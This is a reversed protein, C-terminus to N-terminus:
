GISFDILRDTDITLWWRGKGLSCARVVCVQGINVDLKSLFFHGAKISGAELTLDQNECLEDLAIKAQEEWVYRRQKKGYIHFNAM